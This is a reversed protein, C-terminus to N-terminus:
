RRWLQDANLAGKLASAAWGPNAAFQKSAPNEDSTSKFIM